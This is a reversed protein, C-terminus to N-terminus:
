LVQLWADPEFLNEFELARFDKDQMAACSVQEATMDEFALSIFM